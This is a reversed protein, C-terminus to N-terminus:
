WATRRASTRGAAPTDPTPAPTPMVTSGSPPPFTAPREARVDAERAIHRPTPWRRATAPHYRTRLASPERPVAAARTGAQPPAHSAVLVPAVLGGNSTRVETGVFYYALIERYTRGARAQGLAGYQSMGVGHGYGSGRFVYQDGEVSVDFRTSRVTRAGAVANVANRFQVGTIRRSGGILEIDLVRGSRSRRLIEIGEVRGGYQRSLADLVATRSASTRWSHDPAASDYPDPVGRLYPVPDGDWVLDNDATHGGSSSFYYADALEGRYMLVEGQTDLAARLSVDRTVGSGKYVQASTDDDLDYTAHSGVRRLAYTRALIAQAKAGEPSAFGFEAQVVSAVYPELPAHNVLEMQGGAIRASLDGPYVRDIRGARLRFEAGDLRLSRASVDAGGFRARVDAGIRTLTMSEGTQLAGSEVGDLVIRVPGDTAEIRVEAPSERNLIRIRVDSDVPQALVPAAFLVALLGYRLTTM